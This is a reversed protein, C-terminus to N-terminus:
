HNWGIVLVAKDEECTFSDSSVIDDRDSVKEVSVKLIEDVSGYGDCTVVELTKEYKELEDILEAVTM